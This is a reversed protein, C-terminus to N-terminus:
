NVGGPTCKANCKHLTNFTGSMSNGFVRGTYQQNIRTRRFSLGGTAPNSAIQEVPHMASGTFTLTGRYNNAVIAWMGAINAVATSAPKPATSPTDAAPATRRQRRRRTGAWRARWAGVSCLVTIRAIRIRQWLPPARNGCKWGTIRTPILGSGRSPPFARGIGAGGPAYVRAFALVSQAPHPPRAAAMQVSDGSGGKQGRVAVEPAGAGDLSFPVFLVSLSALGLM